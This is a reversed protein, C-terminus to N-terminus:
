WEIVFSQSDVTTKLACFHCPARSLSIHWAACFGVLSPLLFPYNLGLQQGRWL